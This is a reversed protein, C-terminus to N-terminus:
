EYEDEPEYFRAKLTLIGPRSEAEISELRAYRASAAESLLSRLREMEERDLAVEPLTTTRLEADAGDREKIRGRRGPEEWSIRRAPDIEGRMIRQVTRLSVKLGISCAEELVASTKGDRSNLIIRNQLLSALIASPTGYHLRLYPAHLLFSRLTAILNARSPRSESQLSREPLSLTDLTVSFSTPSSPSVLRAEVAAERIHYLSLGSGHPPEGPFTSVPDLHRSTVGPEFILDAYSEPVGEGDDIVTLTRYRRSRLTSAVFVNRAKADRANRVLERLVAEVSDIRSPARRHGEPGGLRAFGGGLDRYPSDM